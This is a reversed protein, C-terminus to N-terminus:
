KFYWRMVRQRKKREVIMSPLVWTYSLRPKRLSSHAFFLASGLWLWAEFAFFSPPNARFLFLVAVRTSILSAAFKVSGGEENPMMEGESGGCFGDDSWWLICIISHIGGLTSRGDLIYARAVFACFVKQATQAAYTSSARKPPDQPPDPHQKVSQGPKRIGQGM